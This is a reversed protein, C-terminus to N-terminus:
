RDAHCSAVRPNGAQDWRSDFGRERRSLYVVSKNENLSKRIERTNGQTQHKDSGVAQKDDKNENLFRQYPSSLEQFLASSLLPKTPMTNDFCIAQLKDTQKDPRIM